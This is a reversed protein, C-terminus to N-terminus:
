PRVRHTGALSERRKKKRKRQSEGGCINKCKSVVLDSFFTAVVHVIIADLAQIMLQIVVIVVVVVVVVVVM